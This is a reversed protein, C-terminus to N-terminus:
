AEVEIESATSDICENQDKLENLKNIGDYVEFGAMTIGGIAGIIQCVTGLVKVVKLGKM